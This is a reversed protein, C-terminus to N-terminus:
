HCIKVNFFIRRNRLFILDSWIRSITFSFTNVKQPLLRAIYLANKKKKRESDYFHAFFCALYLSVTFCWYWRFSRGDVCDCKLLVFHSSFFIWYMKWALLIPISPLITFHAWKKDISIEYWVYFGFWSIFNGDNHDCWYLIPVSYPWHPLM